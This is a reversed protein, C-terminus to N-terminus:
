DNYLTEYTMAFGNDFPYTRIIRGDHQPPYSVTDSAEDSGDATLDTYTEFGVVSLVTGDASIRAQSKDYESWGDGNEDIGTDRWVDVTLIKGDFTMMPFNTATWGDSFSVIEERFVVSRTEDTTDPQEPDANNCSLLFLLPRALTLFFRTTKM